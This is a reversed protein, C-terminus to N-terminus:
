LSEINTVFTPCLLSFSAHSLKPHDVLSPLYQQNKISRNILLKCCLKSYENDDKLDSFNCTYAIFNIHYHICNWLRNQM